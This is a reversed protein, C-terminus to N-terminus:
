KAASLVGDNFKVRQGVRWAPAAASRIVQTGGNDLRVTTNWASSGRANKEVENGAYAGGAAGAVTTM